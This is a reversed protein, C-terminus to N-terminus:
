KEEEEKEKGPYRDLPLFLEIRAGGDRKNAFAVAVEEGYLLQLRRVVNHLGVHNGEQEQPLERNLQQLEEASFGDGNDSVTLNAIWGGDTKLPRATITIQLARGIVRGHKVSNEVLTLLSVQPVPIEELEKDVSCVIEVPDPQGVSFLEAYNCCQEVESKLPTTNSTFSLIYRLYQSLLLILKQADERSGTQVMGYVSKLCNLVFHPRIQLKLATMENRRAELEKEYQEIKLQTIQDIMHDFTENVQTFEANRYDVDPRASLDGRSIRDMTNVLVGMPKFIEQKMYFWVFPVATILFVSALILLLEYNGIGLGRREYPALYYLDLAQISRKVVMQSTKDVTVLGYGEEKWQVTDMLGPEADGLLLKGQSDYILMQGDLGYELLQEEFVMRLDIAATLTAKQAAVNRLLYLRGGITEVYWGTTDLTGSLRLQTLYEELALEQELQQTPSGYVTGYQGLYMNNAGNVLVIGMLTDNAALLAPFGQALECIDLYVQTRSNQESLNRFRADNLSLNLIYSEASLMQNELTASFLQLNSATTHALRSRSYEAAYFLLLSLIASVPIIICLFIVILQRKLSPRKM